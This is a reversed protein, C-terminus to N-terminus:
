IDGLRILLCDIYRNSYDLFLDKLHKSIALNTRFAHVQYCQVHYVCREYLEFICLFYAKVSDVCSDQLDYKM